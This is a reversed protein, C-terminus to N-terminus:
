VKRAATRSLRPRASARSRWAEPFARHIRPRLHAAARVEPGLLSLPVVSSGDVALVPVEVQRALAASQGPFVFCPYDDTVVIAIRAALRSHLGRVPQRATAVCPWYNISRRAASAANAAM